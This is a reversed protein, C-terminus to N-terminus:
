SLALSFREVGESGLRRRAEESLRTFGSVDLILLAARVARPKTLRGAAFAAAVRAPVYPM